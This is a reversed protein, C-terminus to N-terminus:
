QLELQRCRESSRRPDGPPGCDDDQVGAGTPPLSNLGMGVVEVSLMALMEEDGGAASDALDDSPDGLAGDAAQSDVSGLDPTSVPGTDGGLSLNSTVSGLELAQTNQVLAAVLTINEAQIGATGADIVGLETLLYTNGIIGGAAPLNQIGSGSVVPTDNPKRTGDTASVDFPSTEVRAGRQGRGADINGISSWIVMDGGSSRNIVKSSNVTVDNAAMLLLNGDKPVVLGTPVSDGDDDTLLDVTGGIYNGGPITLRVTGGDEPSIRSFLSRVDGQFLSEAMVAAVSEQTPLGTASDMELLPSDATPATPFLTSIVQKSRSFYDRSGELAARQGGAVLESFFIDMLFDLNERQDSAEALYAVAQEVTISPDDLKRAVYDWALTRYNYSPSVAFTGARADAFAALDALFSPALEEESALDTKRELELAISNGVMYSGVIWYESEDEFLAKLESIDEKSLEGETLELALIRRQPQSEEDMLYKQIFADYDADTSLGALINIDAGDGPLNENGVQGKRGGEGIETRNGITLLGRSDGLDVDRGAIVQVSGDGSIVFGRTPNTRIVIKGRKDREFTFRIDRGAQILTRDAGLTSDMSHQIDAEINLIDRGAILRSQKALLLKLDRIDGTAAIVENAVSNNVYSSVSAHGQDNPNFLTNLTDAERIPRNWYPMVDPDIDSQLVTESGFTEGSISDGALLRLNGNGIPALSIKNRIEVSGTFAAIDLMGPYLSNTIGTKEDEYKTGPLDTIRASNNNIRVDGSLSGIRLDTREGYSYFRSLNNQSIGSGFFASHAQNEVQVVMSPNFVNDVFVSGGANIEVGADGLSLLVGGYNQSEDKTGVDGGARVLANGQQVYYNGGVINGRATVALDGGGLIELQSQHVEPDFDAVVAYGGGGIMKMDGVQQGSTPISVSLHRIDGRADLEIDGGGLAGINQAFQDFAVGWITPLTGMSSNVSVPDDFDTGLKFLWHNAIQQTLPNGSADEPGRIDGGAVVRLDGGSDAFAVGPMYLTLFQSDYSSDEGSATVGLAEGQAVMFAGGGADIGATYIKSEAGQLLIDGAAAVLIDGTGTRVDTNDLVTVSGSGATALRDVSTLDAGGAFELTWSQEQSLRGQELPLGFADVGSRDFGDGIVTAQSGRGLQLDGAARLRLLGPEGGERWSYLDLDQDVSLDGDSAIEVGPMFHYLSGAGYSDIGLRSAITSLNGGGMFDANHGQVTSLSWTGSGGSNQLTGVRGAATTRYSRMGVLEIREAGSITGALSDLATFTDNTGRPAVLRVRGSFAAPDSEHALTGSGDDPLTGRVDITGDVQLLGNAVELLVDGGEEGSQTPTALIRGSSHLAVGAAGILEVRGAQSGRADLFGEIGISGSEAVLKIVNAALTENAALNLNGTRVRVTRSAGFGQGLLSNLQSLGGQLTDVDLTFDGQDRGQAASALLQSGSGINFEGNRGEIWIEGAHGESGAGSVNITPDDFVVAGQDSTIHLYGGSTGVAVNDFYVEVGQLLIEAQEGLVVDGAPGTANLALHGSPLVVRTNLGVSSGSLGIRGGLTSWSSAGDLTDSKLLELAGTSVIDLEVGQEAGVVDTRLTLDGTVALESSRESGTRGVFAGSEVQVESFGAVQVRGGGLSVENASIELSDMSPATSQLSSGSSNVLTLTGDIEFRASEGAGGIGLIGAADLLLSSASLEAAGHVEFSDTRFAVRKGALSVLSDSDLVLAADAVAQAATGVAIRGSGFFLSSNDLAALEGQLDVQGGALLALSGPTSLTSGAALTLTSSKGSGVSFGEFGTLTRGSVALLTADQQEDAADHVLIEADSQSFGNSLAALTVGSDIEISGYATLLLEPLELLFGDGDNDEVLVSESVVDIYTQGGEVRRTGGILLSDAGFNQLASGLLEIRGALDTAADLHDLIAINDGTIDVRPARGGASEAILQGELLLSDGPALLLSGADRPLEPAAADNDAAQSSFYSDADTQLYEARKLFQESNEVRFTSWTHDQQGTGQIGFRGAVVSVGDEGLYIQGPHLGVENGETPTILYGGSQLAYRAPMVVYWGDAIGIEQAGTVQFLTGVEYEFESSLAPDFPAYASGLLPVIAFAGNADANSLIDTSGGPGFIFRSATLNGGGSIDIVAGEQIEEDVASLAIRKEPPTELVKTDEGFDYLWADEIGITGFPVEMGAGSVSTISGSTLTLSERGNLDLTGFPVLLTSDQVIHDAEVLLSGGASLRTPLVGPVGGAFTLTGADLSLEFESLSTTYIAKGAELTLSTGASLRGVLTKNVEPDVSSKYQEVRAGRLRIDESASLHIPAEGGSGQGGFGQFALYGVLDLLAAEVELQGNGGTAGPLAAADLRFRTNDAGLSVYPSSITVLGGDSAIAQVDLVVQRAFILDVDGQFLLSAGLLQLGSDSKTRAYLEISDIGSGSLRAPDLLAVGQYDAPVAQLLGNIGLDSWNHSGLRIEVPVEPFTKTGIQPNTRHGPDLSLSFSGGAYPNGEPVGAELDSFFLVGEPSDLILTGGAAHEYSGERLQAALPSGGPLDIEASAGRLRLLSGPAAVLFGREAFLSIDGGGYLDGNILGDVQYTRGAGSVDLEATEGLWIGQQPHFLDLAESVQNKTTHLDISGGPARLTGEVLISTDSELLIGSCDTAGSFCDSLDSTRTTTTVVEAGEGIRVVADPSSYNNLRHILQLRTAPSLRSGGAVLPLSESLRRSDHVLAVPDLPRMVSPDLHLQAGDAIDIGDHTSTLAFETFGGAKFLGEGLIVRNTGDELRGVVTQNGAEVLFGPGLLALTSSDDGGFGYAEFSGYLELQKRTLDYDVGVSIDGAGGAVFKGNRDVWGGANARLLSDSDLLLDGSSLLDISGASTYLPDLLFGSFATDNVWLGSVDVEVGEAV